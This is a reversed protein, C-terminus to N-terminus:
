DFIKRDTCCGEVDEGGNDYVHVIYIQDAFEFEVRNLQENAQKLQIRNEVRTKYRM